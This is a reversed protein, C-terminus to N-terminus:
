LREVLEKCEDSIMACSWLYDEQITNNMNQFRGLGEGVILHLMASLQGLRANLHDTVDTTEADPKAQYVPSATFKLGATTNTTDSM